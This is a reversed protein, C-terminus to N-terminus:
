KMKKLLTKTAFIIWCVIAVVAMLPWFIIWSCLLLFAECCVKLRYIKHWKGQRWNEGWMNKIVFRVVELSFPIFWPRPQRLFHEDAPGKIIDSNAWLVATTFMLSLGSISGIFTGLAFYYELTSMNSLIEM